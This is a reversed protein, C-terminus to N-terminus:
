WKTSTHTHTQNQSTQSFRKQLPIRISSTPSIRSINNKPDSNILFAAVFGYEGCTEGAYDNGGSEVGGGGGVVVGGGVGILYDGVEVGHCLEHGCVGV